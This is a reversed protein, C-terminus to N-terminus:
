KLWPVTAIVFQPTEPTYNKMDDWAQQWLPMKLAEQVQALSDFWLIAKRQYPAPGGDITGIVNQVELRRLKLPEMIQAGLAMHKNLYYDQDFPVGPRYVVTVTVM